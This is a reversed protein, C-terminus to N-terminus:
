RRRLLLEACRFAVERNTAPIVARLDWLMDLRVRILASRAAETKIIQADLAARTSNDAILLARLGREEKMMAERAATLRDRYKAVIPDVQAQPLATRCRERLRERPGSQGLAPGPSAILLGVM